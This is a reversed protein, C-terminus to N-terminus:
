YSVNQLIDEGKLIVLNSRAVVMLVVLTEFTGNLNKFISHLVLLSFRTLKDSAM